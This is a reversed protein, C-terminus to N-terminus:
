TAANPKDQTWGTRLLDKRAGEAVYRAIPENECRRSFLPKGNELLLVDWGSGERSNNRLECSQVRGTVDRLRWVEESPKSQPPVPKRMLATVSALTLADFLLPKARLEATRPVFLNPLRSQRFSEDLGVQTGKVPRGPRRVAVRPATVV